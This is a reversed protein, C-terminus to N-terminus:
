VEAKQFLEELLDSNIKAAKQVSANELVSGKPVIPISPEVPGDYGIEKLNRVFGVLDIAGNATPGERILDHLKDIDGEPANCIHVYVVQDGRLKKIDEMPRHSTYIHWSDLLLGVNNDPGIEHILELTQDMDHIFEYKKNARETKTGQWELGFRLGYNKLIKAIPTIRKVHWKFNEAYDRENSWNPMWIYCRKCGINVSIQALRPLEKLAQQYQSEESRWGDGAFWGGPIVESEEFLNKVHGISKSDAIEAITRMNVQIGKYGATQALRLIASLSAESTMQLVNPIEWACFNKFM